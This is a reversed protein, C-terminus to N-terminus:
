RKKRLQNYDIFYIFRVSFENGHRLNFVERFNHLYTNKSSFNVSEEDGLWNKYGLILRSGLRFDWTLFADVNFVNFNDDQGNIFSRPLLKGKTDVNHFSIYKVENWYHRARLTLNLRSNFNYIGSLVSTFERNDRFGVIPEGNVERRFAYGLQNEEFVSNTQLDLNFKNSFRFRMGLGIKQYSNNYKPATAYIGSFRVFLKKRSDTSGEMRIQYNDPYDLFRGDTRLEFYDHFWGPIV